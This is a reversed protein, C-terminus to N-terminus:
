TADKEAKCSAKQWTSVMREIEAETVTPIGISEADQVLHDILAAMQRSDYTSSGYFLVMNTCGNLKSDLRETFWGLGKARWGEELREVAKNPVCVVDSVGGISRIAERYVDIRDLKMKAAIQDILVWAYANANLSRRKHHKKIEISIDASKLEDFEARFDVPVTVTINQTGDRNMTLDRLQGIM